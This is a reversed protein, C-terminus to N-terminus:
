FLGSVLWCIFIQCFFFCSEIQKSELKQIEAPSSPDTKIGIRQGFTVDLYRGSPRRGGVEKAGEEEEEWRVSHSHIARGGGPRLVSEDNRM